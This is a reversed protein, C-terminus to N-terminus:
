ATQEKYMLTKFEQFLERFPLADARRATTGVEERLDKMKGACLFATIEDRLVDKAYDLDALAQQFEEILSIRLTNEILSNARRRYDPNLYYFAHSLEHDLARNDDSVSAIVYFDDQEYNVASKIMDLLASERRTLQNAHRTYFRKLSQAPVNFGYVTSFYTVEGEDDMFRDLFYEVTFTQERIDPYVSEYHEEVRFFTLVMEKSTPFEFHLIQPHPCRLEM